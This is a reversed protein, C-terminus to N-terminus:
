LGGLVSFNYLCHVGAAILLGLGYMRKGGVKLVTTVILVGAVHLLFPMWLVQLSLFLVSGFVSETIQTLTAFLLVKEGILFGLGIVASGFLINKASLFEPRHRFIAYVGISKAFEEIFAAAIILLVLSLPMPLNFFLVLAMMQAMFVFPVSFATLLFLSAHPHVRSIGASIFELLAPILRMQNFLREENFNVVGIYFLVAGTLFFLSTSYIYEALTFGDGQLLLVVLTLPSVLSVVHVNAFVTPFFLYSTVITSFFISLFSLEKFSRAVMGIVLANALFFLIVPVLPVLLLLSAGNMLTIIGSILLMVGLYPLAKGLIIVWPKVPASLLVEGARGIRENMISMMFFQSTFYLPFIFVFVLIISDFPLPPSLQSPTKFAGMDADATLVDTYRALASDDAADEFLRLRLEEMPLPVDAVPPTVPEVPGAPVPPRRPNVPAGIQVGSETATFDLESKEYRVDIWLPYAAFLDPQRASVVSVYRGYDRELAALASRGIDTDAAYVEGQLILVDYAGRNNWLSGLDGQFILFREDDAVVAAIDPDDIAIRYIGDQLHMGSQAAFGTAVVLLVLLAAAVPLVNRSMTTLSKKVEWLSITWLSTVSGM